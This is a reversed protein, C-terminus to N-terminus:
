CITTARNHGRGLNAIGSLPVPDPSHGVTDVWEPRVVPTAGLSATAGNRDNAEAGGRGSEDDRGPQFESRRVNLRPGALRWPVTSATPISCTARHDGDDPTLLSSRRRSRATEAAVSTASEPRLRTFRVAVMGPFQRLERPSTAGRRRIGFAVCADGAALRRASDLRAKLIRKGCPTERAAQANQSKPEPVRDRPDPDSPRGQSAPPPAGFSPLGWYLHPSTSAILPSDCYRPALSGSIRNLM